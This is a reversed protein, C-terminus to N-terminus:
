ADRHPLGSATHATWGPQERSPQVGGKGNVFGPMTDIGKANRGAGTAVSHVARASRCGPRTSRRGRASEPPRQSDGAMLGCLSGGDAPLQVAPVVTRVEDTSKARVVAVARGVPTRVAQDHSLGAVIDPDTVM